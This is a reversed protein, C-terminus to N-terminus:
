STPAQRLSYLITRATIGNAVLGISVAVPKGFGPGAVRLLLISYAPTTSPCVTLGHVPFCRVGSLSFSGTPNKSGTDIRLGDSPNLPIPSPAPCPLALFYRDTDLVSEPQVFEVTVRGCLNWQNTRAVPWRGPVAVLLGHFMLRQWSSPVTPAPGKALVVARPSWTLTHLVRQGLRGEITIEVGLSPALYSHAPGVPYPYVSIGNILKRHGYRILGKEILIPGLSVSTAIGPGPESPCHFVGPQPNVFVEGPPSGFRCPPAGYLAFWSEPVSLQADGFAIPVWGRPTASLDVVPTPQTPLTTTTVGTQTTPPVSQGIGCSTLIGALTMFALVRILKEPKM